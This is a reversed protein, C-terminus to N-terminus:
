PAPTGTAAAATQIAALFAATAPDDVDPIATLAVIHDGAVVLTHIIVIRDAGTAAISGSAILDRSVATNYAVSPEAFTVQLGPNSELFGAEFARIEEPGHFTGFPTILVAAPAVLATFADLDATQVAQALAAHMTAAGGAAPSAEQAVLRPAGALAAVLMLISFLLITRRM